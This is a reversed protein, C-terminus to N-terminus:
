DAVKGHETEKHPVILGVEKVGDNEPVCGYKKQAAAMLLTHHTPASNKLREWEDPTLGRIAIGRHDHQCVMVTALCNM